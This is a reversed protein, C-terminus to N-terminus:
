GVPYAVREAPKWVGSIVMAGRDMSPAYLQRWQDALEESPLEIDLEKELEGFQHILSSRWDVITGFVDFVIAKM